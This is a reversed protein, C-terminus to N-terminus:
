AAGWAALIEAADVTEVQQDFRSQMLKLAADHSAPVSSALADRVLVVRHGLDIASLATALVCVDTEVGCLVVCAPGDRGVRAAFDPADFADHTAKDFVNQPVAHPLLADHLAFPATGIRDVTVSAWRRYYRRWTGTAAEARAASIFRTYLTRAPRARVLAEVRPLITLADPCFWDGPEMFLRQMDICLLLADPPLPGFTLGPGTM